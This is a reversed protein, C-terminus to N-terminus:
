NIKNLVYEVAHIMHQAKQPNANALRQKAEDLDVWEFNAIEEPNPCVVGVGQYEVGVAFYIKGKSPRGRQKESESRKADYEQKFTGPVYVPESLNYPLISLEEHLETEINTSLNQGDGISGQPLSWIGKEQEKPSQTLLIRQASDTVVYIGNARYEGEQKIKMIQELAHTHTAENRRADRVTHIEFWCNGSLPCICHSDVIVVDKKGGMPELCRGTLLEVSM